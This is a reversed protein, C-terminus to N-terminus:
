PRPLSYHILLTAGDGKPPKAVISDGARMVSRMVSCCVPMRHNGPYGGVQRHLAGSTVGIFALGLRECEKFLAGLSSLFDERSAAM